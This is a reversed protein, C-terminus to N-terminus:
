RTGCRVDMAPGEKMLLKASANMWEQGNKQVLKILAARDKSMGALLFMAQDETFTKKIEGVVCQCAAKVQAQTKGYKHQDSMCADLIGKSTADSIDARAPAALTSAMIATFAVLGIVSKSRM